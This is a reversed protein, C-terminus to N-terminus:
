TQYLTFLAILTCYILIYLWYDGRQKQCALEKKKHVEGISRALSLQSTTQHLTFLAILICYILNYTLLGGRTAEWVNIEKEKSLCPFHVLKVQYSYVDSCSFLISLFSHAGFLDEMWAHSLYTTTQDIFIFAFLFRLFLFPCFSLLPCVSFITTFLTSTPM